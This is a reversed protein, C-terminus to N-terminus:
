RVISIVTYCQYKGIAITSRYLPQNINRRSKDERVYWLGVYVVEIEYVKYISHKVKCVSAEFLLLGMTAPEVGTQRM